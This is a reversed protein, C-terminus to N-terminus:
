CQDDWNLADYKGILVGWALRLRYRWSDYKYNEPRAVVWTGKTNRKRVPNGLETASYKAM